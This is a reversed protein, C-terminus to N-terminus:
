LVGKEQTSDRSLNGNRLRLAAAGLQGHNGLYLQIVEPDHLLDEGTGTMRNSGMDLVYRYDSM